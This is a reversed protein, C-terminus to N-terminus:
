NDKTLWWEFCELLEKTTNEFTFLYPIQNTRWNFSRWCFNHIEIIGEKDFINLSPIESWWAFDELGGRGGIFLDTNRIIKLLEVTNIGKKYSDILSTYSSLGSLDPMVQHESSGLFVFHTKCKLKKIAKVLDLIKESNRRLHCFVIKEGNNKREIFQNLFAQAESRLQLDSFKNKLYINNVTKPKEWGFYLGVAHPYFKITKEYESKNMPIIEDVDFFTEIWEFIPDGINKKDIMFKRPRDLSYSKPDPDEFWNRYGIKIKTNPLFNRLKNVFQTASIHDGLGGNVVFVIEQNEKGLAIIKNFNKYDKYHHLASTFRIKFNKITWKHKYSINKISKMEKIM